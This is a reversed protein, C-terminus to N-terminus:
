VVFDVFEPSRLQGSKYRSRFRVRAKLQPQVYVFNRDEGTVITRAVGYFAKKHADPVALEIIGAPRGDLQVLWGFQEKRYGALEVDAYQYNIVKLWKDSRRSVYASNKEKAV